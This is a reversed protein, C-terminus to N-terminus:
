LGQISNTLIRMLDVEGLLLASVALLALLVHGVVDGLVLLALSRQV